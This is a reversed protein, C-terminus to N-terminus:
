DELKNEIHNYEIQHHNAMVFYSVMHILLYIGIFGIFFGFREFILPFVQFVRHFEWSNLRIFRGIYIGISSVTFLSLLSLYFYKKLPLYLHHKMKQISSVGLKAGLLAGITIMMLVVWDMLQFVHTEGYIEFFQYAQLHIFDTMVYITNPFFLVFLFFLVLTVTFHKKSERFHTFLHAILYAVGALILNWGLFLILGNLYIIGFIFALLVYILLAYGLPDKLLSKIVM